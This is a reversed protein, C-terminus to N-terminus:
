TFCYVFPAVRPSKWTPEVKLGNTRAEAIWFSECVWSPWVM